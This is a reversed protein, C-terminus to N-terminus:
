WRQKPFESNFATTLRSPDLLFFRGIPYPRAAIILTLTNKGLAGKEIGTKCALGQRIPLIDYLFELGFQYVGCWKHSLSYYFDLVYALFSLIFCTREIGEILWTNIIKIEWITPIQIKYPM